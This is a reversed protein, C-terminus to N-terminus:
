HFCTQIEIWNWVFKRHTKTKEQFWYTVFSLLLIVGQVELELLTWINQSPWLIIQSATCLVFVQRINILIKHGEWFIHVKNTLCVEWQNLVPKKETQRYFFHSIIFKIGFITIYNWFLTGFYCVPCCSCTKSMLMKAGNPSNSIEISCLRFIM